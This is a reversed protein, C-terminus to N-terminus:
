SATISRIPSDVRVFLSWLRWLRAAHDTLTGNPIELYPWNRRPTSSLPEDAISWPAAISIA